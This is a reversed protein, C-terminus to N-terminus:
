DDREALRVAAALSERGVLGQFAGVLPELARLYRAGRRDVGAVRVESHLRSGGELPEVWHAFVVRATAPERWERFADPSALPALGGRVMWIRGCVGSLSWSAGADLQVFPATRFLEDFTMEPRAAAVRMSVLRGLLRCDRLRVTRAARWLLEAAVDSEREHCTRMAPHALWSDLDFAGAM